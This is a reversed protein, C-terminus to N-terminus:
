ALRQLIILHIKIFCFYVNKKWTDLRSLHYEIKYIINKFINCKISLYLEEEDEKKNLFIYETKFTHWKLTMGKQIEDFSLQIISSNSIVPTRLFEIRRLGLLHAYTFHVVKVEYLSFAFHPRFSACYRVESYPLSFTSDSFRFCVSRVPRLITKSENKRM